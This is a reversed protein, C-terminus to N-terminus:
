RERTRELSKNPSMSERNSENSGVTSRGEALRRIERQTRFRSALRLIWAAAAAVALAALGALAAGYSWRKMTGSYYTEASQGAQAKLVLYASFTLVAVAALTYGVARLVV